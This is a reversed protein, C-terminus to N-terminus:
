KGCTGSSCSVSADTTGTSKEAQSKSKYEESRHDTTYFGSGRFIVGMRSSILRRVPSGCKPCQALQGEGVGHLVEFKGCKECAYEYIPM